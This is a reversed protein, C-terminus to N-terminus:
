LIGSVDDTQSANYGLDNQAPNYGLDNQAPNYGLNGVSEDLVPLDFRMIPADQTDYSAIPLNNLGFNGLELLPKDGETYYTNGDGFGGLMEKAIPILKMGEVGEAITIGYGLHKLEQEEKDTLFTLILGGGGLVTHKSATIITDYDPYKEILKDLGYAIARGGIFGLLVMGLNKANDVGDKKLIEIRKKM